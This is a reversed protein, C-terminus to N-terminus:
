PVSHKNRMGLDNRQEQSDHRHNRPTRVLDGHLIQSVGNRQVCNVEEHPDENEVRNETQSQSRSPERTIILVGELVDEVDDLSAHSKQRQRVELRRVVPSLQATGKNGTRSRHAERKDHEDKNIAVAQGAGNGKEETRGHKDADDDGIQHLRLAVGPQDEDADTDQEKGDNKVGNRGLRREKGEERRLM